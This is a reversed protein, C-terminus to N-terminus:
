APAGVQTLRAVYRAIVDIELNVADGVTLAGLVTRDLTLPILAVGFSSDTVTTVTLSTGNVAISGKEAIFPALSADHTFTLEEWRGGSTRTALHGIGDVHGQVIHGDLRAGVVMARELNVQSGVTLQGLASRRLTEPVADIVFSEDAQLDTVTLCVGNVAISDGIEADGTVLPGRIRIRSEGGSAEAIAVIEGIEEIIGTFM